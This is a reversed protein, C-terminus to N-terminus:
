PTALLTDLAKRICGCSSGVVCVEGQISAGAPNLFISSLREFGSKLFATEDVGGHVSMNLEAPTVQRGLAESVKGIFQEDVITSGDKPKGQYYVVEDPFVVLPILREREGYGFAMANPVLRREDVLLAMREQQGFNSAIANDSVSLFPSSHPSRAHGSMQNILSPENKPFKQPKDEMGFNEKRGIIERATSLSRLRRTYNGQNMSLVSSFMGVKDSGPTRLVPYGDMGRFVLQRKSLDPKEMADLWTRWANQESPEMLVWPLYAELMKRAGARDNAMVLHNFKKEQKELQNFTPKMKAWETEIRQIEAKAAKAIPLYRSQADAFRIKSWEEIKSLDTGDVFFNTNADLWSKVDTANQLDLRALKETARM